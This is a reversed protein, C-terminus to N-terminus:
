NFIKLYKKYMKESINDADFYYELPMIEDPMMNILAKDGYPSKVCWQRMDKSMLYFLLYCNAAKIYEKKNIFSLKLDDVMKLSRKECDWELEIVQMFAENVKKKAVRKGELWTFYIECQNAKKIFWQKREKWQRYHNYEHLFVGNFQSNNYAVAFEKDYYNFWGGCDEITKANKILLSYNDSILEKVANTIFKEEKM